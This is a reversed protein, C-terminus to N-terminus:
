SGTAFRVQPARVHLRGNLRLPSNAILAIRRFAKIGLSLVSQMSKDIASAIARADGILVPRCLKQPEGTALAKACVEPGIGAPDGIMAAIIPRRENATTM